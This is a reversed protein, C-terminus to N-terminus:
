KNELVLLLTSFLFIALFGLAILGFFVADLPELRRWHIGSFVAFLVAFWLSVWFLVLGM